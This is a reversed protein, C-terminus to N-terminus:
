AGTCLQRPVKNINIHLAPWPAVAKVTELELKKLHAAAESYLAPTGPSLEVTHAPFPFLLREFAALYLPGSVGGGYGSEWVREQGELKDCCLFM